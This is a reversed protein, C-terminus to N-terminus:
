SVVDAAALPEGHGEAAARVLGKQYIEIAKDRVERKGCTNWLNAVWCGLLM